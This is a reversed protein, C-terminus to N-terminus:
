KSLFEKTKKLIIESANNDYADIVISNMQNLFWTKQRKALKMSSKIILSKAEDLSVEGKLYLAIERYGIINLIIDNNYLSEVEEILGDNIMIDLRKVLMEKLVKRDVDLYFTLIDYLPEDKGTKASRNEQNLALYLARVLRHRNNKDIDIKADHKIIENYLEQNTLHDYDKIDYDEEKSFEYNYLASKIYFGTGGVIMPVEIKDILNRVDTQFDFASYDEGANRIDFLHHLINEKESEKIKASGINLERYVQVSDGNIIEANIKKALHISQKTKGSATPGVIVIIKKM